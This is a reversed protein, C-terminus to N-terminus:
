SSFLNKTAEFFDSQFQEASFRRCSASMDNKVPEFFELDSFLFNEFNFM